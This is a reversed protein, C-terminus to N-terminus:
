RGDYVRLEGAQGSATPCAVRLEYSTV